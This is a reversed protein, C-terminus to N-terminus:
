ASDGWNGWLLTVPVPENFSFVTRYAGGQGITRATLGAQRPVAPKEPPPM